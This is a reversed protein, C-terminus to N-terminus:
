SDHQLFTQSSVGLTHVTEVLTEGFLKALSDHAFCTQLIEEKKKRSDNLLGGPHNDLLSTHPLVQPHGM